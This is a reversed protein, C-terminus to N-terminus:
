PVYFALAIIGNQYSTSNAYARSLSDTSIFAYNITPVNGLFSVRKSQGPNIALGFNTPTATQGISLALIANTRNYIEITKASRELDTNPFISGSNDVGAVITRQGLFKTDADVPMSASHAMKIQKMISNM